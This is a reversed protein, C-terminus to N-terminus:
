PNPGPGAEIQRAAQAEIELLHKVLRLPLGFDQAARQVQSLLSDRTAFLGGIRFIDRTKRFALWTTRGDCIASYLTGEGGLDSEAAIIADIVADIGAQRARDPDNAWVGYLNGFNSVHRVSSLGSPDLRAPQLFGSTTESNLAIFFSPLDVANQFEMVIGKFLARSNKGKTRMEVEAFRVPRSAIKGMVLSDVVCRTDRPLLRHPFTEALGPAKAQFTLGFERALTPMLAAEHARRAMVPGSVAGFIALAFGIGIGQALPKSDPPLSFLQVLLWLGIIVSVILLAWGGLQAMRMRPLLKDLTAAIDPQQTVPETM